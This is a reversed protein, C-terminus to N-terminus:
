TLREYAPKDNTTQAYPVSVLRRGGDLQMLYPQDDNCWDCVYLGGQAACLDANLAVTGRIGYRDLVEMLRWIGIRNGYDRESWMVVDPIKGGAGYGGPRERLSFFEINPIVWLALREGKPWALRPRHIIPSYDFPGYDRPKM